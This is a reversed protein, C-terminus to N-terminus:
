PWVQMNLRRNNGAWVDVYLMDKGDLRARQKLAEVLAQGAGKYRRNPRQDAVLVELYILAKNADIHSKIDVHQNLYEPLRQRTMAAGAQVIGESRRTEAILFDCSGHLEKTTGKIIDTVEQRQGARASLPPNGWMEGAGISALFPLTSDWAALIFEVDDGDLSAKRVHLQSNAVAM